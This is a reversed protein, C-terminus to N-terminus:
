LLPSAAVHGPRTVIIVVRSMTRRPHRPRVQVIRAAVGNEITAAFEKLERVWAKVKPYVIAEQEKTSLMAVAVFLLGNPVQKEVGMINGGAESSRQGM